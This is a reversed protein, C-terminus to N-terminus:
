PTASRTHSATSSATSAAPPIEDVIRLGSRSLAANINLITSNASRIDMPDAHGRKLQKEIGTLNVELAGLPFFLERLGTAGQAAQKAAVVERLAVSAATGATSLVLKHQSPNLGGSKFPAYVQQHFIGFARGAHQLFGVAQGKSVKQSGPRRVSASSSGPSSSASGASGFSGTSGSGSSGTSGGCAALAAACLLLVSLLIATL